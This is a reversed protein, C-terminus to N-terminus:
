NWCVSYIKSVVVVFYITATSCTSKLSPSDFNSQFITCDNCFFQAERSSNAFQLTVTTGDSYNRLTEQPDFFEIKLVVVKEHDHIWSKWSKTIIFKQLLRKTSGLKKKCIAGKCKDQVRCFSRILVFSCFSRSIVCNVTWATNVFNVLIESHRKRRTGNEFIFNVLPNETLSNAYLKQLIQSSLNKKGCNVFLINTQSQYIYM